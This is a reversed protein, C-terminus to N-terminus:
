TNGKLMPISFTAPNISNQTNLKATQGVRQVNLFNDFAGVTSSIGNGLNGLFKGANGGIIGAAKGLGPAVIGTAIQGITQLVPLAKRFGNAVKKTINKFWSGFAM